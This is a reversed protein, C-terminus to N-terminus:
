PEYKILDNMYDDFAKQIKDKASNWTYGNFLIPDIETDASDFFTIRKIVSTEDQYPYKKKFLEIGENLSYDTLLQSIDLFDKKAARGAVANLKMAFIDRTHLMRIGDVLNPKDLFPEDWRMLDVKVENVECTIGFPFRKLNRVGSKSFRSLLVDEVVGNEFYTEHWLDIDVSKRHGYILSLNTGGALYFNSLEEIQMLQKLTSHLKEDITKYHLM